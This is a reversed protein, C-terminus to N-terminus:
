PMKRKIMHGPRTSADEYGYFAKLVTRLHNWPTAWVLGRTDRDDEDLQRQLSKLEGSEALEALRDHIVFEDPDEALMMEVVANDKRSASEEAFRILATGEYAAMYGDLVTYLLDESFRKTYTPILWETYWAAFKKYMGAYDEYFMKATAYLEFENQVYFPYAPGLQGVAWPANLVIVPTGMLLPEMMSLLFGAEEHMLTLIHMEERAMRWFEERPAYYKEMYEPPQVTKKGGASNTCVVMRVNDGKRMIWQKTMASYVKDINTTAAMLRGVYAITFREGKGAKFFHKPDKLKFETFKAPIVEKMKTTLDRVVSPAYWNRAIKLAEGKEHYSMIMVRDAAMYGNLTFRDQGPDLTLVSSKFTMLPMEEIIWVEKLYSLGTQRPSSVLMKYLAAIGSRVTILIDFDWLGGNFAVAHDIEDRLTVYEKTRDKHQPVPIYRINPHKPMWEKDEEAFDWDPILCYFFVDQRKELVGQMFNVFQIFTSCRSPAATMIPDILIKLTM